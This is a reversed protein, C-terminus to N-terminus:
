QLTTSVSNTTCVLTGGSNVIQMYRVYNGTSGAGNTFTFSAPVAGAAAGAADQTGNKTGYWRGQAGSPLNNGSVVYTWNGGTAVYSPGSLSCTPTPVPTPTPPAALFTVAVTNTTCIPTGQANRIQAYRTYNGQGGTGNGYNASGPAPQSDGNGSLDTVGNKTGYFYGRAGTPLNSGTIQFTVAGGYAM